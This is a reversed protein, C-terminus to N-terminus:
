AVEKQNLESIPVKYFNKNLWEEMDLCDKPFKKFVIIWGGKETHSFFYDKGGLRVSEGFKLTM